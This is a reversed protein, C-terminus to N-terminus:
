SERNLGGVTASYRSSGKLKLGVPHLQAANDREHTRGSRSEQSGDIEGHVPLSRLVIRGQRNTLKLGWRGLRM